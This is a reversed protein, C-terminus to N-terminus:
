DVLCLSKLRQEVQLRVRRVTRRSRKLQRAVEADDHGSLGLEVVAREASDLGSLWATVTEALMAAQEPTPEHDLRAFQHEEGQQQDWPQERAADRRQAGVWKRRESCKRVTIVALLAWLSDWTTIEFNGAQT